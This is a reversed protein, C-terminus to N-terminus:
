HNQNNYTEEFEKERKLEASIEKLKDINIKRYTKGSIVKETFGMRKLTHGMDVPKIDIDYKLKVEECLNKPNVGFDKGPNNDELITVIGEMLKKNEVLNKIRLSM